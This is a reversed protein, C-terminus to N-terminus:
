MSNYGGHVGPPKTLLASGSAIRKAKDQEARVSEALIEADKAERSKAQRDKYAWFGIM